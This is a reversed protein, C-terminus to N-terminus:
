KDCVHRGIPNDVLHHHFFAGVESNAKKAEPVKPFNNFVHWMGDWVDLTVDVGASRANRAIRLSDSLLIERSGVQILLPPFGELAANVPSIYPDSLSHSGAYPKACSYLVAPDTFDPDCDVNTTVSDGTGELDAWPSSLFMAGPLSEGADRLVLTMALALGGGASEGIIGVHEARYGQSLLGKFAAVADEVAAPYPFEPALRYDVSFTKIRSADAISIPFVANAKPTGLVYAGGHLCLLVSKETRTKPTTVWIGPVGGICDDELAYPHDIDDCMEAWLPHLSQRFAEADAPDNVDLDVAPMEANRYYEQAEDSINPPITREVM